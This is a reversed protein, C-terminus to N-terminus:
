QARIRMSGGVKKSLNKNNSFGPISKRGKPRERCHCHSCPFFTLFLLFTSRLLILMKYINFNAMQSAQGRYSKSFSGKVLDDVKNAIIEVFREM